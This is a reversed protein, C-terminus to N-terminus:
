LGIGLKKFQEAEEQSAMYDHKKSTAKSIANKITSLEPKIGKVRDRDAEDVRSKFFDDLFSLQRHYIQMERINRELLDVLQTEQMADLKTAASGQAALARLIKSKKDLEERFQNYPINEKSTGENKNPDVSEGSYVVPEPDKNLIAAFIDRIKEGLSKKKNQYLQHNFEVKTLVEGLTIGASGVANLGEILYPKFSEPLKVKEKGQDSDEVALSKLVKQQLAPADPSYDEKLIEEILEPYFPQGKFVSSFMKKINLVTMESRHMNALIQERVALKYDERNYESFEKLLAILEKTTVELKKLNDGFNKASLPDSSVHQREAIVIDAMAQTNYSPSDPLIRPWDIFKIVALLIKIKDQTLTELSLTYFNVVYDLQNDYNALRISFQDHKNTETFMGTEPMVLDTVKSDNKYPDAKITGKNVLINYVISYAGYFQRFSDRLKPLESSSLWTYRESLAEKLAQYWANDAM